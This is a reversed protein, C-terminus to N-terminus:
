PQSASGSELPRTALHSIAASSIMVMKPQLDRVLGEVEPLSISQTGGSLRPRVIRLVQPNGHAVADEKLKSVLSSVTECSEIGSIQAHLDRMMGSTDQAAAVTFRDSPELAM